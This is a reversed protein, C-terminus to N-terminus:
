DDNLCAHIQDTSFGRYQLFRSRKAKDPFDLKTSDGFKKVLVEMALQFWDIAIQELAQESLAGSVGRQQLEQRIRVPGQGKRVRASVFAEAFRQDSLLSDRELQNLVEDFLHVHEPLKAVLKRYLETRSHERRALLGM